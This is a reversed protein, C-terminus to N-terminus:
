TKPIVECLDKQVMPRVFNQSGNNVQQHLYNRVNYKSMIELGLFSAKFIKFDGTLFNLILKSIRNDRNARIM